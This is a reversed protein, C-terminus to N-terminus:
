NSISEKEDEGLDYSALFLLNIIESAGEGKQSTNTENARM